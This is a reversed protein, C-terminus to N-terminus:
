KEYAELTHRPRGVPRKGEPNKVFITHVNGKQGEHTSCARDM